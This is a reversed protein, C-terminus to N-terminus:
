RQIPLKIFLYNHKVQRPGWECTIAAAPSLWVQGHCHLVYAWDVAALPKIINSAKEIIKVPNKKLTQTSLPNKYKQKKMFSFLFLQFLNENLLGLQILDCSCTKGQLYFWFPVCDQTLCGAAWENAWIKKSIFGKILIKKENLKVRCLWICWPM